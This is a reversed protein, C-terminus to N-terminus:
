LALVKGKCSMWTWGAGGRQEIGIRKNTECCSLSGDELGRVCVCVCVLGHVMKVVLAASQM